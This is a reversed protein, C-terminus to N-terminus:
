APTDKIKIEGTVGVDTHNMNWGNSTATSDVVQFIFPLTAQRIALRLQEEQEPTLKRAKIELEIHIM